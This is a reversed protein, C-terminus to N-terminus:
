TEEGMVVCVRIINMLFYDFFSFIIMKDYRMLLEDNIAMKKLKGIKRNKLKEM